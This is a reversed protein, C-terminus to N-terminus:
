KVKVLEVDFVLATNPPIVSNGAEGYALHPPLVIVAHSGEKMLQLAEAWGKLVSDVKIEAPKDGQNRSSDFKKGNQLSGVYNVLVTGNRSPKKGRGEKLIKYQLGSATSIWGPNKANTELFAKTAKLNEEALKGIKEKVIKDFLKQALEMEQPNLPSPKGEMADLIGQLLSQRDLSMNQQKLNQGIQRGVFYGMKQSDSQPKRSCGSLFVSALALIAILTARM